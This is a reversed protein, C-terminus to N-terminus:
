DCAYAQTYTSQGILDYAKQHIMLNKNQWKKKFFTWLFVNGSVTKEIFYVQTKNEGVKLLSAISQGVIKPNKTNMDILKVIDKTNKVEAEAEAKRDWVISSSAVGICNYSSQATTAPFSFFFIWTFM